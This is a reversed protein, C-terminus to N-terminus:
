GSRQRLMPAGQDRQQESSAGTKSSVCKAGTGVGVLGGRSCEASICGCVHELCASNEDSVCVTRSRVEKLVGWGLFVV